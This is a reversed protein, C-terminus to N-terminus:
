SFIHRKLTSVVEQYDIPKGIHADMGAKLCRQIDEKFVNATMAIIPIEKANSIDLERIKRTAELGDMEPMQLDMFIVDYKDPHATFIELAERGNTACDIQLNLPELLAQVVERNIEVDEALLISHGSFNLSQTLPGGQSDTQGKEEEVGRELDGSEEALLKLQVQCIFTSGEGLVSEIQISGDMLECIRKSIPLGLGTGGFKRTTSAEAQEFSNFLRDINESSIGIGTDTVRIELNCDANGKRLLKATLSIRGEEPTFKNANSLLNTIVQALRQSDGLLRTPIEEDIDVDLIQKKNEMGYTIVNVVNEIMAAFSFEDDFLTLKNAEIKSMDLVDNIVGLLHKSAGQIKDFAENKKEVTASNKGVTSMGIIANMPTRMEHSMNSLFEGKARSAATAEELAKSKEEEMIDRAVANSIATAVTGILMDDSDSWERPSEHEELSMTGWLQGDVYIPACILSIIGAMEHFIRFREDKYELTNNCYITKVRESNKQHRPFIDRLISSFGKQSAKPAYKPNKTWVYKPISVNSNEEFVAVIIRAVKLYSGIKALAVYILKDMSEKSIFNKTITSMLQQQKLRQNLQLVTENHEIANAFLLSLSNLVGLVDQSYFDQGHRSEYSISGWYKKQFYIPFSFIPQTKPESDLNRWQYQLMPIEEDNIRDTRQISICDIELCQGAKEMASHLIEQFNSPTTSLLQVAADNVLTLLDIHKVKM